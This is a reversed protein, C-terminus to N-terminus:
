TRLPSIWRRIKDQTAKESPLEDWRDSAWALLRRAIDSINPEDPIGEEHIIKTFKGVMEDWNFKQKRGGRRSPSKALSAVVAEPIDPQTRPTGITESATSREIFIWNKGDVAPNWSFPDALDIRCTAFRSWHCETNWVHWALPVLEGGLFGRNATKAKDAKFEQSLEICVDLYRRFSALAVGRRVAILDQAIKWEERTPFDPGDGLLGPLCRAAYAPVNARLVESARTIEAIPMFLNLRDPLADELTCGPDSDAWNDGYM